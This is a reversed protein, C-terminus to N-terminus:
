DARFFLLFVQAKAGAWRRLGLEESRELMPQFTQLVASGEAESREPRSSLDTQFRLFL